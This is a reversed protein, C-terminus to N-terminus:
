EFIMRNLYRGEAFVAFCGAVLLGGIYLLIMARQHANIDGKRAAIWAKPVTWVTLVSLLHLLGFHGALVPGVQAPIFFTLIATAGMLIMYLKGLLRHAPTGKRFLFLYAGLMLCPVVSALHIIILPATQHM